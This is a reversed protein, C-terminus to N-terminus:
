KILHLEHTTPDYTAGEAKGHGNRFTFHAIRETEAKGTNTDFTVGTSHITTLNPNPQEGDPIALTIDVQGDSYLRDDHSFYTAAPSVVLDYTRQQKHHLRLEVGKLYVQEADKAQRMNGATIEVVTNNEKEQSYRWQNAVTGVEVPLSAPKPLAQQKLLRKQDRYTIGVAGVIAAMIVLLLWRAGRM